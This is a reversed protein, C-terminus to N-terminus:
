LIHPFRFGRVAAQEFDTREKTEGRLLGDIFHNYLVGRHRSGLAPYDESSVESIRQRRSELCFFDESWGNKLDAIVHPPQYKVEPGLYNLGDAGIVLLFHAAHYGCFRIPTNEYRDLFVYVQFGDYRNRQLRAIEDQVRGQDALVPRGIGWKRCLPHFYLWHAGSSRVKETLGSLQGVIRDSTLASVGILLSSGEQDIRRRLREIRLLSLRVDEQRDDDWGYLSLRITTAYRLLADAVREEDLLSGNTVVAIDRFGCHRARELAPGLLPSMTPEGGTLLLGTTQGGLFGFLRDVFEWKLSHHQPASTSPCEPCSLTCESTLDLELSVPYISDGALYSKLREAHCGVKSASAIELRGGKEKPESGFGRELSVSSRSHPM